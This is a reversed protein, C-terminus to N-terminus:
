PPLGVLMEPALKARLAAGARPACGGALRRVIQRDCGRSLHLEDYYDGPACGLAAAETALDCFDIGRGALLARLPADIARVMALQEPHERWVRPNLPPSYAIITSGAKQIRALYEGLGAIRELNVRRNGTAEGVRPQVRPALAGEIEGPYVRSGDALWRYMHSPASRPLLRWANGDDLDAPRRGGAAAQRRVMLWRLSAETQQLSLLSDLDRYWPLSRAGRAFPAGAWWTPSDTPTDYAIELGVTLLYGSRLDLLVLGPAGQAAVLEEFVEHQYVFYSNSIFGNYFGVGSRFFTASIHDADSQGMVLVEVKPILHVDLNRLRREGPTSPNMTMSLRPSSHLRLLADRMAASGGATLASEEDRITRNQLGIAVLAILIAALFVMLKRTQTPSQRAM